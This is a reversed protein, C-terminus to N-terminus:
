GLLRRLAARYEAFSSRGLDTLQVRTEGGQKVTTAYGAQEIKRLHTVLNGATLTLLSQLRNFTLWDDVGIEGLAVMIRLRVPAHIVPDLQDPAPDVM